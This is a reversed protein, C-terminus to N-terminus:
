GPGTRRSLVLPGLGASEGIEYACSLHACARELGRGDRHHLEFLADGATVSQGAACAAVIGVAPDIEDELLRRGGGLAAIALGLERVDLYNLSGGNAARLVEVDVRPLLTPRDLASPDGGQAEVVAAFRERAAGGDLAGAIRARGEEATGAVDCLVLMEAGLTCVLERLDPPGGGGLCALAEEIELAHGMARGLPRDMATQFATAALGMEGALALMAEALEAGREAEPLFAGSGYKVDLVLADIGESLKKSLISSAILPVSEILGTVDRLAYLKRDAPVLEETQAGFAFGCRELVRGLEAPELATRLGPIAELKDLTGGTHGLGRGSIMPVAVGCAAVAPALPISVKDGVGGTSHKDAKPGTLGHELTAGSRLMARTWHALEDPQMGRIFIATLLASAQYDAIDGAVYGRMFTEIQERSLPGGDRKTALLEPFSM